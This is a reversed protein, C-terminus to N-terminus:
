FGNHGVPRFTPGTRGVVDQNTQRETVSRQARGSWTETDRHTLSSALPASASREGEERETASSKPKDLLKGLVKDASSMKSMEPSPQMLFGNQVAAFGSIFFKFVLM